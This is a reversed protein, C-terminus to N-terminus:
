RSYLNEYSESTIVVIDEYRVGGVDPVYIGPEITFVMGPRVILDSHPGKDKIRPLEHTQLGIGHGLSHPFYDGYGESEIVERAARDLEGFTVGPRCLSLAKAHAKRVADYMKQCAPDVNGYFVVRTMDSRYYDLVLGMDILVMEDVKRKRKTPIHHPYAGNETYAVIPDFSSSKAGNKRLIIELEQAAREETVGEQIFDCLQEFCSWTLTCAKRIAAIEIPDKVMRFDKIPNFSPQLSGLSRKKLWREMAQWKQISEDEDYLHVSQSKAKGALFDEMNKDALLSVEVSGNKLAYEIFRGDVFLQASEQGIWLHANEVVLGTLYYISIEDILFLFDKENEKLYQQTKEIRKAYSL